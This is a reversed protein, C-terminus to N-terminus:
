EVIQDISLELIDVQGHVAVSSIKGSLDGAQPTPQGSASVRAVLEVTEAGSLKAQPSMSVSDDLVVTLPLDAVTLRKAALPMRGGVPRALVFVTMDPTVRSRLEPDISVMLTLKVEELEPLDPVTEGAAILKDRASVIGSKLSSVQEGEAHTLGKRWFGIAARYDGTEYAAIGLLGLATIEFPDLALTKDVETRIKDDMQGSNAFFLAQAYQGNVGAYQPAESPLYALANRYGDAAASYNQMSMFTNALLYWGEPNEPEQELRNQLATIAEEVTPTKGNFPDVPGNIAIALDGSRGFDSYIALGMAPMLLALAFATIISQRNIKLPKSNSEITDDVDQLLNRELELKLSAFNPADLNGVDREQELEALREEYIAINLARRDVDVLSKTEVQRAQYVPYLVFAVALLSFLAIGLWLAIM